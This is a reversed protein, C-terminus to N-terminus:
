NEQIYIIHTIGGADAVSAEAAAAPANLGFDIKDETNRLAINSVKMMRIMMTM